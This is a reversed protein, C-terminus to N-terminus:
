DCKRKGITFDHIFIALTIGISGGLGSILLFPWGGSKVAHTVFIYQSFTIGWSTIFAALYRSQHVNKSNFGLLFVNAFTSFFVVIGVLLTM